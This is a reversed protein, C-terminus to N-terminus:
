LYTVFHTEQVFTQNSQKWVKAKACLDKKQKNVLTVPWERMDCLSYVNEWM